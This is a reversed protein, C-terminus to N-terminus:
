RTVQTFQESTARELKGLMVLSSSITGTNLFCTEFYMLPKLIPFDDAADDDSYNTYKISTEHLKHCQTENLNLRSKM